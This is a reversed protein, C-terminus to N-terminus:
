GNQPNAAALGAAYGKQYTLDNTEASSPIYGLNLDKSGTDIVPETPPMIPNTNGGTTSDPEAKAPPTDLKDMAGDALQEDAPPQHFGPTEGEHQDGVVAHHPVPDPALSPAKGFGEEESDEEEGEEEDPEPPMVVGPKHITPELAKPKPKTM